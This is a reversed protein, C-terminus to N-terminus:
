IRGIKQQIVNSYWVHDLNEVSFSGLVLHLVRIHRLGFGFILSKHTVGSYVDSKKHHFLIWKRFIYMLFLSNLNSVFFINMPVLTRLNFVYLFETLIKTRPKSKWFGIKPGVNSPGSKSRYPNLNAGDFFHFHPGTRFGHFIPGHIGPDSAKRGAPHETQFYFRM